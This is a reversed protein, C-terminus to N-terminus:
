FYSALFTVVVHFVFIAADSQRMFENGKFGHMFVAELVNCIANATDSSLIPGQHGVHEELLKKISKSLQATIEAKVTRAEEAVAADGGSRGRRRSASDASPDNSRKWFSMAM